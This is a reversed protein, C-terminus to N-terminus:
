REGDVRDGPKVESCKCEMGVPKQKPLDVDEVYLMDDEFVAQTLECLSADDTLMAKHGGGSLTFLILTATRLTEIAATFIM